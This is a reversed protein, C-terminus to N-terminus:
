AMTKGSADSCCPASNAMMHTPCGKRSARTVGASPRMTEEVPVMGAAQDDVGQGAVFNDFLQLERARGAVWSRYRDARAVDGDTM